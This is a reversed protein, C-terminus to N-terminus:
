IRFKGAALTTFEVPQWDTKYDSNLACMSQVKVLYPTAPDLDSLLMMDMPGYGQIGQIVKFRVM